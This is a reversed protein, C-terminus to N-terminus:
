IAWEAFHSALPHIVLTGAEVMALLKGKTM